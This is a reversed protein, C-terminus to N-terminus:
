FGQLAYPVHYPFPKLKRAKCPFGVTGYALHFDNDFHGSIVFEM